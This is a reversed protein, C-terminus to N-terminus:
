DQTSIQIVFSTIVSPIFMERIPSSAEISENNGGDLTFAQVLLAQNRYANVDLEAFITSFPDDNNVSSSEVVVQWSTEAILYRTTNNLAFPFDCYHRTATNSKVKLVQGRGVGGFIHLLYGTEDSVLGDPYFCNKWNMDEVYPGNGDSGYTPRPRMVFTDGVEIGLLTLDGVASSITITDSNNSVVRFNAIPLNGPNNKRGLWTIDYGVWQNTTFGPDPAAFRITNSTLEQVEAGWLGSHMVRKTKFRFKDFEGDPAGWTATDLSNITISTPTGSGEAQRCLRNPDFGGFVVYGATGSNWHLDPITVRNTSGSPVAVNVVNSLSSLKGDADKAAIAFNYTRPGSITGGSGATTGQLPVSPPGPIAPMVNVIQRGTVGLRIEADGGNVAIHRSVHFGWDSRDFISDGVIPQEAFPLWSWAPRIEKDRPHTGFGIRGKQGYADLYWNDNHWQVDVTATEFNNDPKIKVLRVLQNSIGLPQWNLMCIDGLRLHIARMSVPFSFLLSGGSDGRWNGRYQEAQWTSVIRHLQDFNDAGRITFSGAIEQDTRFIDESDLPNFTDSSWRNDRNQFQISYRNGATLVSVSPVELINSEDFRYAVYGNATSGNALKSIVATSYNSGAVPASQQSALTRKMRVGLLGTQDPTIILRAANRLGRIIDSVSEPQRLYLSSSFRRRTSSNGFQDQYPINEMCENAAQTFESSNFDSANWGGWDKMISEIQRSPSDPDTGAGTALVRVTPNSNVDALKRPVAIHLVCMSGHPDGVPQGGDLFSSAGDRDGKNGALWWGGLHAQTANGIGPPVNSMEGDNYTHPIKTDNVVVEHIYSVEGFCVLAEMQLFNGDPVRTIIVPDTWATGYLLPVRDGYRAENSGTDLTVWKGSTYERVTQVQPPNWQIGGFRGTVRNASDRYYMGRAVCDEKSYNCTTAASGSVYNGRENAGGVDPSYGCRYFPSQPNNAGDQRQALTTPFNWPCTRQIRITPIQKDAMNFRSVFGVSLEKGDSSRSPMKGGPEKCIGRFIIKSDSSYGGAAADYLVFRLELQAGKFGKLREYNNWYFYDADALRINVSAPIDIGQESLAQSFAIDKNLIGARYLNGGYTVEHTSVYLIAGDHFTIEALLLPQYSSALEKASNIPGIAM